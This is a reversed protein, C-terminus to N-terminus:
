KSKLPEVFMNSEIINQIEQAALYPDNGEVHFIPGKYQSFSHDYKPDYYDTMLIRILERYNETLFADQLSKKVDQNKIRKLVYKLKEDVRLRFNPERHFPHVYQMYVNEVRKELSAHVYIHLGKEKAELIESPLVAHGIRKSEAEIVFYSSSKQEWLAQFLLADFTKQNHPRSKGIDGFLSGSHNAMQEFDLVPVGKQQLQSLIKTKGVGTMGHLVVMKPPILTPILELIKERYARYGGTLRLPELGSFQAFTAFSKSRMGGRWCYLMPQKEEEAIKKLEGLLDPLKPSVIKMAEWQAAKSGEKKYITGIVKREDDSFLPLNVAGPISGDLFEGPSRVDVPIIKSNSHLYDEVLIDSVVKDEKRSLSRISGNYRFERLLSFV